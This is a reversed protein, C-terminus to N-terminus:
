HTTPIFDQPRVPNAGALSPRTCFKTLIAVLGLSCPESGFAAQFVPEEVVSLPSGCSGSRCFFDKKGPPLLPMPAARASARCRRPACTSVQARWRGSGSGSPMLKRRQSKDRGASRSASAAHTRSSCGSVATKILLAATCRVSSKTPPSRAARSCVECLLRATLRSHGPQGSRRAAARAPM